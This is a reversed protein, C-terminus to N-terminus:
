LAAVRGISNRDRGVQKLIVSGVRRMINKDFHRAMFRMTENKDKTVDLGEKKALIWVDNVQKVFEAHDLAEKWIKEIKLMSKTILNEPYEEKLLELFDRILPADSSEFTNMATNFLALRPISGSAAWHIKEIEEPKCKFMMWSPEGIDAYMVMGEITLSDKNRLSMHERYRNYRATLDNHDGDMTYCEPILGESHYLLSPPCVSGYEREVGFLLKVCLPEDYLITIPNRSGYLEFSLNHRPNAYIVDLIEPHSSTYENWMSGFMGFTQDQLFPTLRTKYSLCVDNKYEYRYALINTGDLKTYYEIQQCDPWKYTGVKDFPYHLKPTAYIIQQCEWDNIKVIVLAGYRHDSRRCIFGDVLNTPNYPDYKVFASLEDTKVDLLKAATEIM